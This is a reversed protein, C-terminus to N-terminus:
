KTKLCPGIYRLETSQIKYSSVLIGAPSRLALGVNTGKEPPKSCAIYSGNQPLVNVTYGSNKQIPAVILYFYIDEQAGIVSSQANLKIAEERTLEIHNFTDSQEPANIQTLDFISKTSTTQCSIVFGLCFLCLIRTGHSM